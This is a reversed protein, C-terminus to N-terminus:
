FLTAVKRRVIKTWDSQPLFIMEFNKLRCRFWFIFTGILKKNLFKLNKQNKPELVENRCSEDKRGVVVHEDLLEPFIRVAGPENDVVNIQHDISLLVRHDTLFHHRNWKAYGKWFIHVPYAYIITRM